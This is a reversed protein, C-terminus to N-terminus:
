LKISEYEIQKLSFSPDIVKVENYTFGFIHYILCDAKQELVSTGKGKKKEEIIQDVIPIFINQVSLSINPIPIQQIYFDYFDIGRIARAYIFNYAYWSTFNSNLYCLWFKENIKQGNKFSMLTNTIIIGEEDYCATIKLHPYPKEIHAVLRQVLVKPKLFEQVSEWKLKDKNKLYRYSRINYRQIDIGKLLRYDTPTNSYFEEGIALGLKSEIIKEKFKLREIKDIISKPYQAKYIQFTNNESIIENIPFKGVEVIDKKFLFSINVNSNKKEKKLCFVSEELLVKEFSKGTDLMFVLNFKKWYNLRTDGWSEGYLSKKPIIFTLLGNNKVLNDFSIKVFLEASDGSSFEIKKNKRFYEKEFKTLVTRFGYPPNGIVIDFGRRSDDPV